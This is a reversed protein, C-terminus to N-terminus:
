VIGIEVSAQATRKGVCAECSPDFGRQRGPKSPREVSREGIEASQQPEVDDASEMVVVGATPTMRRGVAEAVRLRNRDPDLVPVSWVGGGSPGWLQTGRTNKTTQRPEDKITSTKWIQKGTAADLAVVSGRVNGKPDNVEAFEGSTGIFVTGNWVVPSGFVDSEHQTDLVSNQGSTTRRTSSNGGCHSGIPAM